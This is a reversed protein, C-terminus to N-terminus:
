LVIMDTSSFVVWAIESILNANKDPLIADGTDVNYNIWGFKNKMYLYYLVLQILSVVFYGFQIFAINVSRLSLAM